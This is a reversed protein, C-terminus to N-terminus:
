DSDWFEDITKLETDGTLCPYLRDIRISPEGDHVWMLYVDPHFLLIKILKATVENRAGCIGAKIM